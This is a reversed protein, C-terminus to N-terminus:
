YADSAECQRERRPALWDVAYPRVSRLRMSCRINPRCPRCVGACHRAGVTISRGRWGPLPGLDRRASM